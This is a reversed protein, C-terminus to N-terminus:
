RSASGDGKGSTLGGTSAGGGSGAGGGGGSGAGRGGGGALLKDIRAIKQRLEAEERANDVRKVPFWAPLNDLLSSGAEGEGEEWDGEGRQDRTSAGPAGVGGQVCGASAARRRSHHQEGAATVWPTSPPALGDGGVGGTVTVAPAPAPAPAASLGPVCDSAAASPAAGPLSAHTPPLAYGRRRAIDELRTSYWHSVSTSWTHGAYALTGGAVAAVAGTALGGAYECPFAHCVHVGFDVGPPQKCWQV